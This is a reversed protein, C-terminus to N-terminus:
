NNLSNILHYNFGNLINNQTDKSSFSIYSLSFCNYFLNKYNINKSFNWKTINPICVLSICNYFIYSINKIEIIKWKSIDPIFSVLSCNYFM